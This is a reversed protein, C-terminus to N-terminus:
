PYIEPHAALHDAGAVTLHLRNEREEALGSDILTSKMMACGQRLLDEDIRGDPRRVSGEHIERYYVDFEEATPRQDRIFALFLCRAAHADRDRNGM